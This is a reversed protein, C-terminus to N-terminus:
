LPLSWRVESVAPVRHERPLLAMRLFRAGSHSSPPPAPPLGGLGQRASSVTSKDACPARWVGPASQQGVAGPVSGWAGGAGPVCVGSAHESVGLAPTRQTGVGWTLSRPCVSTVPRPRPAWPREGGRIGKPGRGSCAGWARGRGGAGVQSTLFRKLSNGAQLDMGRVVAGVIYPRVDRVEPSVTVTLPAPNESIHLVRLLLRSAEDVEEEEGEGSERKRRERKKRRSEEKEPDAKGKSRSGGRGGGRLYELISKTQCSGVMKELRRDKLKNGRLNIDKLRPCDALEAPVESLQNNSLDLTQFPPLTLGLAGRAGSPVQGLGM